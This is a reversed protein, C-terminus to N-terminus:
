PLVWCPPPRLMGQSKRLVMRGNFIHPFFIFLYLLNCMLFFFFWGASAWLGGATGGPFAAWSEEDCCVSGVQLDKDLRFKDSGLPKGPPQSTLTDAQLAPSRPEIGPDPLNGPSPFPLGSWYEQRPFGMSLSAQYNVPDCLTLCSQAM